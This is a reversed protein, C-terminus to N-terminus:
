LCVYLLIQNVLALDFNGSKGQSEVFFISIGQSELLFYKERVEGISPVRARQRRLIGMLVAQFHVELCVLFPSVLQLIIPQDLPELITGIQM